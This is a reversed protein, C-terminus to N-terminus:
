RSQVAASVLVAARQTLAVPPIVEQFPVLHFEIRLLM